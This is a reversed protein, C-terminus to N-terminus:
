ANDRPPAALAERLSRYEFTEVHPGDWILGREWAPWETGTENQIVGHLILDETDGYDVVIRNEPYVIEWLFTASLAASAKQFGPYKDRLIQTARKAQESAFSGRTAVALGDPTPYSIGLSGDLKDTVIAPADLDLQGALEDGYNFFKPYPRAIVNHEDDYILGRCQRTVPTWASEYQAKETYNAICFPLTPHQQVRVYGSEVTGYFDTLDFLDDLKVLTFAEM